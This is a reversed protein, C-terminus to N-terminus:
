GEETNALWSTCRYCHELVETPKRTDFILPVFGNVRSASAVGSENISRGNDDLGYTQRLQMRFDAM